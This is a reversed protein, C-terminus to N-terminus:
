TELTMDDGQDTQSWFVDTDIFWILTHEGWISILPFKAGGSAPHVQLKLCLVFVAQIDCKMKVSSSDNQFM